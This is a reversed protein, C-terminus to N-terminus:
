LIHQKSVQIHVCSHRNLCEPELLKTLPHVAAHILLQWVRILNSELQHYRRSLCRELNERLVLHLDAACSCIWLLVMLILPIVKSKWYHLQSLFRARSNRENWCKQEGIFQQLIRHIIQQKFYAVWDFIARLKQSFLDISGPFFFWLM